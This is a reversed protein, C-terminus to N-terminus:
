GDEFTMHEAIDSIFQNAKKDLLSGFYLGSLAAVMGAMTPITALSIGSAMMRANSTGTLAMVDFVSIMGVVTGLLGLLPCLSVLTKITSIHEFIESKTQSLFSERIKHAFWSSRDSRLKWRKLTEHRVNPLTFKFFLFRDIILLWQLFTAFLIALLVPGGAELFGNIADIFLSM